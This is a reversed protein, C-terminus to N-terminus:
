FKYSMDMSIFNRNTSAQPLNSVIGTYQYQWVVSLNRRVDYRLSATAFWADEYASSGLFVTNTYGLQQSATWQPAIKYDSRL